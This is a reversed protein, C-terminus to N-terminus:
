YSFNFIACSCYYQPIASEYILSFELLFSVLLIFLSALAAIINKREMEIEAQLTTCDLEDM